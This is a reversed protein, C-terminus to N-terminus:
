EAEVKDAISLRAMMGSLGERVLLAHMRQKEDDTMMSLTDVIKLWIQEQPTNSYHPSPETQQLSLSLHRLAPTNTLYDRVTQDIHILRARGGKVGPIRETVWGQERVWRNITQKAMGVCNALEQTTMKSHLTKM